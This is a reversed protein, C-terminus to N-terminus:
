EKCDPSKGARSCTMPRSASSTADRGTPRSPRRKVRLGNVQEALEEGLLANAKKVLECCAPMGKTLLDNVQEALEKGLLANAKIELSM